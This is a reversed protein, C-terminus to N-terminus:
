RVLSSSSAESSSPEILREDRPLFLSRASRSSLSILARLHAAGDGHRAAVRAEAGIPRPTEERRATSLVSLVHREQARLSLPTSSM